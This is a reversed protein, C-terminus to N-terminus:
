VMQISKQRTGVMGAVPWGDEGCGRGGSDFLLVVSENVDGNATPGDYFTFRLRRDVINTINHRITM